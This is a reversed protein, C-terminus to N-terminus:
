NVPHVLNLSVV